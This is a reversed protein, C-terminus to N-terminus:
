ALWRRGDRHTIEIQPRPSADVLRFSFPIVESTLSQPDAVTSVGALVLEGDALRHLELRWPDRDILLLERTGVSAYFGFKERSRDDRSVIETAFDPGGFWFTDHCEATNDKLFVAIDPIRYNYKWDDIRDSINVGPRVDGLGPVQIVEWMPIGFSNVLFQHTDNPNPMVVYVGEWVEDHLDLGKRRREAILSDSIDPDQILTPM